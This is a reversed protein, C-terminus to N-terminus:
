SSRRRRRRRAARRRCWSSRGHGRFPAAPAPPFSCSWSRPATGRSVWSVVAHLDSGVGDGDVAALDDGSEVEDARSLLAHMDIAELALLLPQRVGRDVRVRRRRRHDITVEHEPLRVRDQVVRGVLDAVLGRVRFVQRLAGVVGHGSCWQKPMTGPTGAQRAVPAFITKGPSPKSGREVSAASFNTMRSAITRSGPNAVVGVAQYPM